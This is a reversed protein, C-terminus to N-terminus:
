TSAFVQPIVSCFLWLALYLVDFLAVFQRYDQRPEHFGIALSNLFQSELPVEVHWACVSQLLARTCLPSVARRTYLDWRKCLEAIDHM